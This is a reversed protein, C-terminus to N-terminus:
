RTPYVTMAHCSHEVSDDRHRGPTEEIHVYSPSPKGNAPRYRDEQSAGCWFTLLLQSLCIPMQLDSSCFSWALILPLYPLLLPALLPSRTGMKGSISQVWALLM